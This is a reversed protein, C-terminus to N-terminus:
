RLYRPILVWSYPITYTSYLPIKRIRIYWSRFSGGFHGLHIYVFGFSFASHSHHLHLSPHLLHHRVRFCVLSTWIYM